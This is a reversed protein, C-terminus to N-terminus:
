KWGPEFRMALLAGFRGTKGNEVRHSYWNDTDCGTCIEAKEISCVGAQKLNIENAKWLNLYVGDPKQQLLVDFENRYANRVRQIVDEGVQYHDPGISPGIGALINDPACGYRSVM